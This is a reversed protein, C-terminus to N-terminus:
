TTMFSERSRRLESLKQQILTRRMGQLRSRISGDYLIDGVQVVLGGVLAPDVEYHVVPEATIMRAVRDRLAARQGDDLPVASRVTVSQRGQRHEWIARARRAIPVLLSIRGHRNLVRLFRVLVPEARGEFADVLIRDREALPVDPSDLLRAFDPRAIWVDAILEDLDNLAPEVRGEAEAAGLFAQAYSRAVEAGAGEDLVTAHTVEGVDSM